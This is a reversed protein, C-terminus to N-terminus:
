KKNIQDLYKKATNYSINATKGVAYPTIEKGEMRLLNIANEVKAKSKSIKAENAKGTATKKKYSQKIERMSNTVEDILKGTFFQDAKEKLLDLLEGAQARDLEIRVKSDFEVKSLKEKSTDLKSILEQVDNREEIKDDGAALIMAVNIKRKAM